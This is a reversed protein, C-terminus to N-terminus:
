RRRLAYEVFDAVPVFGIKRYISNSTPNARDTFLVVTDAGRERAWQSVHATAAAGYGRRRHAPPTYVPGIRSMGHLPPSAVAHAVPAGDVTWLGLANGLALQQRVVDAPDRSDRGPLAENVFARRLEALDAVDEETGLRFTGPVEPIQLADLRYFLFAQAVHAEGGALSRFAEVFARAHAEPGTVGEFPVGHELLFSLVPRAAAPPLGSLEIPWPPTCFAAGIARGGDEVSLFLLSPDPASTTALLRRMVTLPVTNLVPDAEYLARTATWFAEPSAHRVVKM